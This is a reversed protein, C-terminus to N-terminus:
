KTLPGLLGLDADARKALWLSLAWCFSVLIIGSVVGGIDLKDFRTSAVQCIQELMPRKGAVLMVFLVRRLTEQSVGSDDAVNRLSDKKVLVRQLV